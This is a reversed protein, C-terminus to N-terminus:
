GVYMFDTTCIQPSLEIGRQQQLIHKSRTTQYFFFVLNPITFASLYQARQLTLALSTTSIFSM